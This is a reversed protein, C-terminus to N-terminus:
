LSALEARLAPPSLVEFTPGMSMLWCILWRSSVLQLTVLAGGQRTLQYEHPEFTDVIRQVVAPEFYILAQVGASGEILPGAPIESPWEFGTELLEVHRFRGTHFSRVEQRLECYGVLYLVGARDVLKYPHLVRSTMEGSSLAYYETMVKQSRALGELLPTMVQAAGGSSIRIREALSQLHAALQAPLVSEIRERLRCALEDAPGLVRDLALRLALAETLNLQTPCSFHDAWRLTIHGDEIYVGIYDDPLYPPLGCMLIERLDDMIAASPIGCLQSVEDVHIGPHRGLFPILTMIRALRNTDARPGQASAAVEPAPATEVPDPPTPAGVHRRAVEARFAQSRTILEPPSIIRAHTGFGHLWGILRDSDVFRARVRGAGGELPETDQEQFRRSAIWYVEEDFEIWAEGSPGQGMEWSRKDLHNEIRFDEPAAFPKGRILKPPEIIQNLRFTRVAERLHCRGVLYWLGHYFGMGYPDVTRVTESAGDLARYVIEVQRGELSARSLADYVKPDCGRSAVWEAQLAPPMEQMEPAALQLKLLASQLNAALASDPEVPFHRSVLSLMQSEEPSLELPELILSRRDIVYGGPRGGIPQIMRLGLGMERLAQKDREFRKRVTADSGEEYGIVTQRIEELSRPERATLLSGMLNLIREYRAVL